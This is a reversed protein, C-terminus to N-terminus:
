DNKEVEQFYLLSYKMQQSFPRRMKKEEGLRARRTKGGELKRSAVVELRRNDCSGEIKRGM